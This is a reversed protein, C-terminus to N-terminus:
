RLAGSRTLNEVLRQALAIKAELEKLKVLQAELHEVIPDVTSSAPL